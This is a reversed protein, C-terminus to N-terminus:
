RFGNKIFFEKNFDEALVFTQLVIFLLLYYM